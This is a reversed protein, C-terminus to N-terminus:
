MEKSYKSFYYSQVIYVALYGAVLLLIIILDPNILVYLMMIIGFIIGMADFGKAKARNQVALNREDNEEIRKRRSYEPSASAAHLTYLRPISTASLWGGLGILFGSVPKPVDQGRLYLSAFLMLIGLVLLVVYFVKKKM